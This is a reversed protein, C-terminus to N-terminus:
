DVKELVIGKISQDKERGKKSDVTMIDYKKIKKM